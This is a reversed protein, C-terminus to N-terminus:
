CSVLRANMLNPGKVYYRDDFKVPYGILVLIQVLIGVTQAMKLKPFLKQAASQLLHEEAIQGM